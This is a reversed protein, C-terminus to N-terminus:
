SSGAWRAVEDELAALLPPGYRVAMSAYTLVREQPAGGPYLAARARALQVLLTENVRKLAAVLRKEIDHTGGLAANRASEVTRGLTPDLRAVGGALRGYTTALDRRLGDLADAVDPPLRERVLRAELAGPPGAFDELALAHKELVREVRGEILLGSWRPMPTQQPVDLARYLPVSDPLYRLEGPGALYAVTPCVAAEVM